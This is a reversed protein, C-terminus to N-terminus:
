QQVCTFFIECSRATNLFGGTRPSCPRAPRRRLRTLCFVECRKAAYPLHGLGASDWCGGLGDVRYAPAGCWGVGGM